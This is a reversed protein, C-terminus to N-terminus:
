LLESAANQFCSHFLCPVQAAEKGASSESSFYKLVAIFRDIWYLIYSMREFPPIRKSEFSPKVDWCNDLAILFTRATFGSICHMSSFTHIFYQHRDNQLYIENM